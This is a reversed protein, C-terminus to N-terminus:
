EAALLGAAALSALFADVDAGVPDPDVGYERALAAVLGDRDLEQDLLDWIARATGTLSFFDGSDLSMVVIEDDIETETFRDRAKTLVRTM